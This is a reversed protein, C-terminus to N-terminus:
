SSKESRVLAKSSMERKKIHVGKRGGPPNESVGWIKKESGSIGRRNIQIWGELDLSM